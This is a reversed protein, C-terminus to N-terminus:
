RYSKKNIADLELKELNIPIESDIRYRWNVYDKAIESSLKRIHEPTIYAGEYGDFVKSVAQSVIRDQEEKRAKEAYIKLIGNLSNRLGEINRESYCEKNIIVDPNFKQTKLKLFLEEGKSDIPQRVGYNFNPGQYENHIIASFIMHGFVVVHGYILKQHKSGSIFVYNALDEKPISYPIPNVYDIGTVRNELDKSYRLYNQISSWDIDPLSIKSERDLHHIFNYLIKAVAKTNDEGGIRLQLDIPSNIYTKMLKTDISSFGKGYQKKIHELQEKAKELNPSSINFHINGKEDKVEERKSKQYAFKGGPELLIANGEHELNKIVPPTKGRDSKINLLNRIVAFQEVFKNDIYGSEKTSFYNNCEKCIIKNSQLNSGLASHIIHENSKEIIEANCYICKYMNKEGLHIKITCTFLIKMKFEKKM